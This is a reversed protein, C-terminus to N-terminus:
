WIARIAARLEAIQAASVVTSGPIAVEAAWEPPPLGAAVYVAAVAARLENLHVAKIVTVRPVLTPDTWVVPSLAYRARLTDIAARLESLHVTKVVTGGPQVPDDTFGLPVQGTGSVAITNTGSTKDSNVTVTGSYATAAVPAFTVTVPQSGGAAITGSWAGSFGTPYTIGTM